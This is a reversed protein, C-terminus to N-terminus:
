KIKNIYTAINTIVIPSYSSMEIQNRCWDNIKILEEDMTNFMRRINDTTLFLDAFM